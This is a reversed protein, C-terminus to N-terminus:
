PAGRLACRLVVVVPSESLTLFMLGKWIMLASFVITALNLVQFALQMSFPPLRPFPSLQMLPAAFPSWTEASQQLTCAPCASCCVAGHGARGRVQRKNAWLLRLAIVQEEVFDIAAQM